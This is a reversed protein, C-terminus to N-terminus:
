AMRNLQLYAPQKHADVARDILVREYSEGLEELLIHPVMAASSPYYHLQM